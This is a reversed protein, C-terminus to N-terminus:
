AARLAAAGNAKWEAETAMQMGLRGYDIGLYGAFPGDHLTQVAGRPNGIELLDQAMVGVYRTDDDNAYTWSYLKTGLDADYGVAEIERKIRIDSGFGGAPISDGTQSTDMYGQTPDSEANNSASIGKAYTSAVFIGLGLFPFGGSADVKEDGTMERMEDEHDFDGIHMKDTM